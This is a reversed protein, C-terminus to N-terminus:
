VRNSNERTALVMATMSFHYQYSTLDIENPVTNMVLRHFRTM